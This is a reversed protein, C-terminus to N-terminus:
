QSLAGYAPMEVGPITAFYLDRDPASSRNFELERVIVRASPLASASSDEFEFTHRASRIAPYFERTISKTNQRPESLEIRVWRVGNSTETEALEAPEHREQIVLRAGQLEGRLTLGPAAKSYGDADLLESVPIEAVPTSVAKRWWIRLLAQEGKKGLPYGHVTWDLISVPMKPELKLDYALYTRPEGNRPPLVIEAWAEAPPALYKAENPDQLSVRFTLDEMASRLPPVRTEHATAIFADSSRDSPDNDRESYKQHILSEKGDAQGFKLEIRESGLLAFPQSAVNTEEVKATVLQRAPTSPQTVAAWENLQAVESKPQNNEDYVRFTQMSIARKLHAVLNKAQADNILSGGTLKALDVLEQNDALKATTANPQQIGVIDMRVGPIPRGNRIFKAKLQAITPQELKQEPANLIPYQMDSVLQNDGDTIVILQQRFGDGRVQGDERLALAIAAYLPTAGWPEVKSNRVRIELADFVQQNFPGMRHFQEVDDDPHILPLNLIQFYPSPELDYGRRELNGQAQIRHAFLWLSVRHRGSQAIPALAAQLAEKALDLLNPGGTPLMSGSCDLIISFAVRDNRADAVKIEPPPTAPPQFLVTLPTGVAETKWRGRWYHGRYLMTPALSTDRLNAQAAEFRFALADPAKGAGVAREGRRAPDVLGVGSLGEVTPIWVAARGTPLPSKNKAAEDVFEVAHPDAGFLRATLEQSSPALGNAAAVKSATLSVKTDDAFGRLAEAAVPQGAKGDPSRQTALAESVNALRTAALEFFHTPAGRSDNPSDANALEPTANGWFDELFREGQWNLFSALEFWARQEAPEPQAADFPVAHPAFSAIRRTRTDIARLSSDLTARDDSRWATELGPEPAAIAALWVRLTADGADGAQLSLAWDSLRKLADISPTASKPAQDAPLSAHYQSQALKDRQKLLREREGFRLLPGALLVEARRLDQQITKGDVNGFVDKLEEDYKGELPEVRKDVTSKALQVAEVASALNSKDAAAADNSPAFLKEPDSLTQELEDLATLLAKTEAPGWNLSQSYRSRRYQWAMLHPLEAVIEEWRTQAADIAGGLDLLERYDDLLEKATAGLSGITNADGILALDEFERRRTEIETLRSQLVGFSQLGLTRPQSSNSDAPAVLAAAAESQERVRGLDRVLEAHQKWRDADFDRQLLRMWQLEVSPQEDDSPLRPFLARLVHDVEEMSRPGACFWQWAVATSVAPNPEEVLKKKEDPTDDPKTEAPAASAAAADPKAATAGEAAPTAAAAPATEPKTEPPTAPKDGSAGESPAAIKPNAIDELQKAYNRRLNESLTMAGDPSPFRSALAFSLGAQSADGAIQSLNFDSSNLRGQLKKAEDAYAAGAALLQELRLLDSRRLEWSMPRLRRFSAEGSKEFENEFRALVPSLDAGRKLPSVAPLSAKYDQNCRALRLELSPAQWLAPEQRVENGFQGRVFGDVNTKLYDHLEKVTVYQDKDGADDAAGRLGHEFYFGFVSRRMEPSAWALQGDGTSNLVSLHPRQASGKEVEARAKAAFDYQLIGLDWLLDIRNADLAVLLQVQHKAAAAELEDLATALPLWSSSKLWDKPASQSNPLLLCPQGNGTDNVVGHLSLYLVVVKQAAVKAGAAVAERLQKLWAEQASTKEWTQLAEPVEWQNAELSARYVPRLYGSNDWSNLARGDERAWANPPIPAPYDTACVAIIPTRKPLFFILYCCVAILALAAISAALKKVLSMAARRRHRVGSVPRPEARWRQGGGGGGFVSQTMERWSARRRQPQGSDADESQRRWGDKGAM